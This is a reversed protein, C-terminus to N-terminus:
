WKMKSIDDDYNPPKKSFKKKTTSTSADKFQTFLLHLCQIWSDHIPRTGLLNSHLLYFTYRIFEASINTYPIPNIESPLFDKEVLFFVVDIMYQFQVDSMIKDGKRNVGKLIRLHEYAIQKKQEITKQPKEKKPGTVASDTAFLQSANLLYVKQQNKLWSKIQAPISQIHTDEELIYELNSLAMNIVELKEFGYAHANISKSLESKKKEIAAAILDQNNITENIITSSETENLFIANHIKSLVEIVKKPATHYEKLLSLYDDKTATGCNILISLKHEFYQAAPILLNQNYEERLINQFFFKPNIRDTLEHRFVNQLEFFLVVMLYKAVYLAYHMPNESANPIGHMGQEKLEESLRITNSKISDLLLQVKYERHVPNLPMFKIIAVNFIRLTEQLYLLYYFHSYTNKHNPLDIQHFHPILPNATSLKEENLYKLLEPFHRLLTTLQQYLELTNKPTYQTAKQLAHVTLDDFGENTNFAPRLNGNLISTLITIKM